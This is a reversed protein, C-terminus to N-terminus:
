RAATEVFVPCAMITVPRPIRDRLRWLLLCSPVSALFCDLHLCYERLHFFSCRALFLILTLASRRMRSRRCLAVRLTIVEQMSCFTPLSKIPLGWPTRLLSLPRCWLWRIATHSYPLTM